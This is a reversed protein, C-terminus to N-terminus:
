DFLLLQVILVHTPPDGFPSYIHDFLRFTHKFKLRELDLCARFYVWFADPTAVRSAKLNM